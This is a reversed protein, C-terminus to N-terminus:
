LFYNEVYGNEVYNNITNDFFFQFNESPPGVQPVSIWKYVWFQKGAWLGTPSSFISSTASFNNFVTNGFSDYIDSLPGYNYDYIFYYNGTGTIDIIKDGQPEILKTLGGLGVSTMNNLNSFGFFFPYIGTIETSASNSQTGDSVTITFQTSTNTIPSIVVGNSTNTITIQGPTVIPPYVSPIMNSLGTLLTPLTRKTITYELVPIPFTGVEVYGSNFPPLLRISCLPPLYPYIMRRLVDSLPQNSFTTGTTVDSFSVPVMRSDTFEIPFFNINVPTGFIDLQSGTTGITDLQPLVIDGWSFTGDQYFLTRGVSSASASSESVTPFYTNNIGVRGSTSVFRVDGNQSVFDLSLSQSVGSVRQSQFYPYLAFLSSNSGSIIGIRTTLQSITDPKTNFLFHDIDNSYLTNNLIDHSPQYSFTGSFSRKGILIKRKLDRGSPNLTDIGIYEISSSRTEKFPVSSYLSLITDRLDVPNIEKDSNDRLRNLINNLYDPSYGTGGVLQYSTSSIPTSINISFTSM